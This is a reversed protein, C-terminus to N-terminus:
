PLPKRRTREKGKGFPEIKIKRKEMKEQREGLAGRLKTRIEPNESLFLRAETFYKGKGEIGSTARNISALISNPITTQKGMKGGTPTHPREILLLIYTAVQERSTTPKIKGSIPKTSKEKKGKMQDYMKKLLGETPRPPWRKGRIRKAAAIFYGTIREPYNGAIPDANNKYLRYVVQVCERALEPEIPINAEELKAKVEEPRPFRKEKIIFLEIALAAARAQFFDSERIPPTM